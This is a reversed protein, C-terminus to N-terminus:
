GPLRSKEKRRGSRQLRPDCILIPKMVLCEVVPLPTREVSVQFSRVLRLQTRPGFAILLDDRERFAEALAEVLQSDVDTFRCLFSAVSASAIQSATALGFVRNTAVLVGSFCLQKVQPGIM